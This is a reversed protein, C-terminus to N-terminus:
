SVAVGNLMAGWWFGNRSILTCSSGPTGNFTLKNNAIGGNLGATPPSGAGTCVITHAHGGEDIFTLEIEDRDPAALTLAIAGPAIIHYNAAPPQAIIAGAVSLLNPNKNPVNGM